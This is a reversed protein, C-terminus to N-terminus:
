VGDSEAELDALDSVAEQGASIRERAEAAELSDELLELREMLRNWAEVSVLVAAPRGRQALVVPEDDLQALVEAQRIRLDSLPVIKPIASM